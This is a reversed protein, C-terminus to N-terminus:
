AVSADAVTGAVDVEPETGDSCAVEPATGGLVSAEPDAGVVEHSNYQNVMSNQMVTISITNLLITHGIQVGVFDVRLADRLGIEVLVVSLILLRM